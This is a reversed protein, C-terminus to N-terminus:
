GHQSFTREAELASSALWPWRTWATAMPRSTDVVTRAFLCDDQFLTKLLVPPVGDGGGAGPRLKRMAEKVEAASVM